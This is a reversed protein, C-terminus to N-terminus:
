ERGALLYREAAIRFLRREMEQIDTLSGREILQTFYRANEEMFRQNWLENHIKVQVDFLSSVPESVSELHIWVLRRNFEFPDSTQGPSLAVARSNLTEVSFLRSEAFSPGDLTVSELGGESRNYDSERAAVVDFPEGAELARMVREIRAEDDLPVWIMRLTAAGPSIYRDRNREYEIQVERWSVFVRSTVQTYIQQQIFSRDRQSRVAQDLTLGESDQLRQEALESSGRSLSIINERLDRVYALLGPRHQAPVSAEFEALLLEDTVREQLARSIRSRTSELWERESMERADARLRADMPAFFESAYVPRGNIQGVLADILIHDVLNEQAARGGAASGGAMAAALEIDEATAGDGAGLTFGTPMAPPGTLVAVDSLGRSADDESLTRMPRRDDATETKGGNRQTPEVTPPPLKTLVSEPEGVRTGCSAQTLLAAAALLRVTRSCVKRTLAGHDPRDQMM